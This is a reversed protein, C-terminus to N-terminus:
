LEIKSGVSLALNSIISYTNRDENGDKLHWLKMTKEAKTEYSRGNFFANEVTDYNISFSDSILTVVRSSSVASVPLGYPNAMDMWMGVCRMPSM